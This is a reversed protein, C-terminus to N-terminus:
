SFLPHHARVRSTSVGKGEFLGCSCIINLISSTLQRRLAPRCALSAGPARCAALASRAAPCREARRACAGRADAAWVRGGERERERVRRRLKEGVM